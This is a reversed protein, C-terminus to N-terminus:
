KCIIGNIPLRTLPEAELRAPLNERNLMGLELNHKNSGHYDSGGTSVLGGARSLLFDVEEMSYRSYWCEMGGLGCGTLWALQAEFGEATLRREGEGGLPHAWVSIGGAATIAAIADAADIRDRGLSPRKLYKGICEDLSAGLGRELLIRGLHPKGPSSLSRLWQKERSDLEIGFDQRLKDLRWKLKEAQLRRGRDLAELLAPHRRDFGYGLIHCKGLPSICSFEVGPIFVTGEPVLPEMAAIGEVTDHDTVSFMRIGAAAIKEALERASDSGDSFRTHIHLDIKSGM